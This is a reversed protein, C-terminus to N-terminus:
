SSHHHAHDHGSVRFPLAPEVRDLSTTVRSWFLYICVSGTSCISIRTPRKCGFVADSIPAGVLCPPNFGALSIQLGFATLVVNSLFIDQCGTTSKCIIPTTLETAQKCPIRVYWFHYTLNLAGYCYPPRHNSEVVAWQKKREALIPDPRGSSDIPWPPRALSPLTVRM